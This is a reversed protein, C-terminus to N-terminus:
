SGSPPWALLEAHSGVLRGITNGFPLPTQTFPGWQLRVWIILPFSVIIIVSDPRHFPSHYLGM